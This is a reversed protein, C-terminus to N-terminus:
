GTLSVVFINLYPDSLYFFRRYRAVKKLRALREDKVKQADYWEKWAKCREEHQLSGHILMNSHILFQRLVKKRKDIAQKRKKLFANQQSKPVKKWAQVFESIDELRFCDIRRFSNDLHILSLIIRHMGSYLLAPLVSHLPYSAPNYHCQISSWTFKM